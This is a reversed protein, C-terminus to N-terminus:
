QEKKGDTQNVIRDDEDKDQNLGVKEKLSLVEGSNGDLVLDYKKEDSLVEIAYVLGEQSRELEMETIEGPYQALVLQKVEDTTLAPTQQSADSQFIGIGLVIAILGASLVIGVKKKM